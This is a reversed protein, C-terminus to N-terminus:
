DVASSANFSAAHFAADPLSPPTRPIGLTRAILFDFWRDPLLRRARGGVHAEWGVRTRPRPHPRVLADEVAQAVRDAPIAKDCAKFVYRAVNDILPGYLRRAASNPSLAAVGAKEKRWIESQITGPNIICVAIGASALELRLADSLAEIAFKSCSYAGFLPSVVQGTVSSMNVLRSSMPGSAAVCTRMLPLMAKTVALAGFFNVEFQYRWQEMTVCEIPGVVCIGANNVLGALGANGCRGAVEEALAAVSHADTVDLQVPTIPGAGPDDMLPDADSLRRVTALVHFGSRSLRRACAQGIGSSTGTVLVFRRDAPTPTRVPPM